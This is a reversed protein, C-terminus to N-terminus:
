CAPPHARRTGRRGAHHLAVWGPYMRAGLEFEGSAESGHHSADGATIAHWTTPEGYDFNDLEFRGNVDTLTSFVEQDEFRGNTTITVTLGSVGIGGPETKM